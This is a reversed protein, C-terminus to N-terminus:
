RLISKRVHRPFQEIREQTRVKAPHPKKSGWDHKGFLNDKEGYHTIWLHPCHKWQKLIKGNARLRNINFRLAERCDHDGVWIDGTMGGSSVCGWDIDDNPKWNYWVKGGNRSGAYTDFYLLFGDLWFVRLFDDNTSGCHTATFSEEYVLEFGFDEINAQYDEGSMSFTTDGASKIIEHKQQNRIMALGLMAMNDEDNNLKYDKGSLQEFESIPDNSLAQELPTKRM